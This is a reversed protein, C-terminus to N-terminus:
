EALQDNRYLRKGWRSCGFILLAGYVAMGLFHLLVESVKMIGAESLAYYMWGLLILHLILILLQQLRYSIMKWNM